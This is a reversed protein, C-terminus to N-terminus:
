RRGVVHELHRSYDSEPRPDPHEREPELALLGPGRRAAPLRHHQVAM